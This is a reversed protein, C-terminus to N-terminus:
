QYSKKKFVKELCSCNNQQYSKLICNTKFNYNKTKSSGPRFEYFLM